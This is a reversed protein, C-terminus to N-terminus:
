KSRKIAVAASASVAALGGFLGSGTLLDKLFDDAQKSESEGYRLFTVFHESNSGLLDYKITRGRM